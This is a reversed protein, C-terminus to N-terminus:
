AGFVEDEGIKRVACERYLAALELDIAADRETDAARELWTMKRRARNANDVGEGTADEVHLARIRDIIESDRWTALTLQHAKAM